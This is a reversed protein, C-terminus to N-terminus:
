KLLIVIDKERFWPFVNLSIIKGKELIAEITTQRPAHIKFHVNWEKPWAPFLYIKDDATQLLMEQLGIMGSGGWNHDPVWDFGPGWFAPFRRESNKLKLLTLRKAEETLGLRAAFINDQKWGTHSRFKLAFTDLQYTNIAIDLGPKGIGFIGWPFVPYLQPTEVNNVRSWVIAPAITTNGNNHMFPLPPLRNLFGSFYIREEKSLYDGGIHLLNETVTKLAAITSSPNYAMKFTEAASGPFLILQGKGDLPKSSRQKSLYQYHEDFFRLSNQILPLYTKINAGAYSKSQLIMLCFELVTDWEYELWANYELGSDFGPPRKWGYETPNPLGFTEIQENFNAGAHGWYIKTRLLATPLLRNYFDFQPKMLDADGSKLMPWYVLRQNQATFTGGGWNRHDPTGKITSDTFVPDVTFLGGNFKNPYSGKANCGLMYRFLQYNQGVQWAEDEKNINNPNILIYSRNWYENWWSISATPSDHSKTVVSNLENKWSDLDKTQSNHLVINISHNRDPYKSKLSWSKFATNLYIGEGTKGKIFNKGFLIGGSTLNELPNFLNTKVSDLGQQKISADFVTPSENRHYFLIQNNSYDFEDKKTIVSVHKAWKWSNANNEKGTQLRDQFRWNEYVVEASLKSNSKIDLHIVPHFVDVWIKVNTKLRGEGCQVNVYGDKLILEQSFHKNIFPNPFLKLRLRGSKLLTNNEDFSGTKM